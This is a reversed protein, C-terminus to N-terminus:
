LASSHAAPSIGPSLYMTMCVVFCHCYQSFFFFFSAFDNPKDSYFGAKCNIQTNLMQLVLPLLIKRQPKPFKLGEERNSDGNFKISILIPSFNTKSNASLLNSTAM